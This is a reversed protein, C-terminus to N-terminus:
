RNKPKRKKRRLRRNRRNHENKEGQKHRRNKHEERSQNTNEKRDCKNGVSSTRKENEIITCNTEPSTMTDKLDTINKSNSFSEKERDLSHIQVKLNNEKEREEKNNEKISKEEKDNYHHKKFNLGMLGEEEVQLGELLAEKKYKEIEEQYTKNKKQLSLELEYRVNPIAIDGVFAGLFTFYFNCNFKFYIITSM